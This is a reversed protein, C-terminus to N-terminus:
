ARRVGNSRRATTAVQARALAAAGEFADTPLDEDYPVYFYPFAQPRTQLQM